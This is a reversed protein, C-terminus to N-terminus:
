NLLPLSLCSTGTDFCFFLNRVLLLAKYVSLYMQWVSFYTYGPKEYRCAPILLHGCFYREPEIVPQTMSINRYYGSM